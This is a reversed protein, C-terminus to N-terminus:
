SLDHSHNVTNFITLPTRDKGPILNYKKIYTSRTVAIDVKAPIVQDVGEFYLPSDFSYTRQAVSDMYIWNSWEGDYYWRAYIDYQPLAYSDQWNMSINWRAPDISTRASVIAVSSVEGQDYFDIDTSEPDIVPPYIRYIPSWNSMQNRSESVIRFRTVLAGNSAVSPLDDKKIIIRPM